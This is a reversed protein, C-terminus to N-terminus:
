CTLQRIKETLVRVTEIKCQGDEDADRQLVAKYGCAIFGKAQRRSFGADRLFTEIERASPVVGAQLATKVSSIRASELAPFTVMSVEMLEIRTLTRSGTKPELDSEVVKFGISLGSIAKECLLKYAQRARPIDNIFLEGRVFLGRSDEFIERWVGIPERADHQWLMPPMRKKLRHQRLSDTFAGPAVRDRATDIEDFVSAYGEFRGSDTLTKINFAADLIKREM